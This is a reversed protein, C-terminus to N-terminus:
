SWLGRCDWSWLCRCRSWVALCSISGANAAMSVAPSCSSRSCEPSLSGDGRCFCIRWRGTSRWDSSCNSSHPPSSTWPSPTERAVYPPRAVTGCSVLPSLALRQVRRLQTRWFAPLGSQLMGRNSIHGRLRSGWTRASRVYPTREVGRRVLWRPISQRICDGSLGGANQRVCSRASHDWGIEWDGVRSDPPESGFEISLLRQIRHKSRM